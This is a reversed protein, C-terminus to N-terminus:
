VVSIFVGKEEGELGAGQGFLEKEIGQRIIRELSDILLLIQVFNQSQRVGWEGAM